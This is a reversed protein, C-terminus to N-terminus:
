DRFIGIPYGVHITTHLHRGISDIFHFPQVLSPDSGLTDITVDLAPM